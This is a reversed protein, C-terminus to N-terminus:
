NGFSPFLPVFDGGKDFAQLMKLLLQAARELFVKDHGDSLDQASLLGGIAKNVTSSVSVTAKVDFSLSKAM